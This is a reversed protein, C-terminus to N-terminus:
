LSAVRMGPNVASGLVKAYRSKVQEEEPTQPDQPYLPVYYGKNRLEQICANLQPISASVNPLKVINAHPDLTLQGLYALNDPVRKNPPLKDPFSALVRGAVSIDCPIVDVSSLSAIKTLIPLLSFTALAPAEDTETYIISGHANHLPKHSHNSTPPDPCELSSFSRLSSSSNSNKLASAPFVLNRLMASSNSSM